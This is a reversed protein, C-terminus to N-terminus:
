IIRKQVKKIYFKIKKVNEFAFVFGDEFYYAQM